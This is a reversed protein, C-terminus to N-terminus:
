RCLLEYYIVCNGGPNETNFSVVKYEKGGYLAKDGICPEIELSAM